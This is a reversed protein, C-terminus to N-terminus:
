CGLRYRLISNEFFFFSLDWEGVFGPFFWGRGRGGHGHGDGDVRPGRVWQVGEWDWGWGRVVLEVVKGNRGEDWEAGQGLEQEVFRIVGEEDVGVAANELIKLSDLTPASIFTGTYVTKKLRPKSSM